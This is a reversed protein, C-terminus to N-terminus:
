RQTFKLEIRRNVAMEARDDGEYIPQFEGFGTAVLRSALAAYKRDREGHIVLM